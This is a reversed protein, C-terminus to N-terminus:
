DGRGHIFDDAESFPMSRVYRYIRQTTGTDTKSEVYEYVAQIKPGIDRHARSMFRSYMEGTGSPTRHGDLPGGLFCHVYEM